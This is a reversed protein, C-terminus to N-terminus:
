SARAISQGVNMMIFIIFMGRTIMTNMFMIVMTIIFLTTETTIIM